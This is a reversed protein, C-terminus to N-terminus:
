ERRLFTSAKGDSAIAGGEMEAAIDVLTSWLYLAFSPDCWIRFEAQADGAAQMLIVGVGIMSTMVVTNNSDGANFPFSCTQRLLDIARAGGLAFGADQRIVPYVGPPPVLARVEEVRRQSGGIAEVLFESTALRAVLMGDIDQSWSNALRPVTLGLSELWQAAGPGKCGFRQQGSHDQLWVPAAKTAFPQAPAWDALPSRRITAATM